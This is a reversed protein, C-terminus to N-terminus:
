AGTAINLSCSCVRESMREGSGLYDALADSIRGTTLLSVLDLMAYPEEEATFCTLVDM